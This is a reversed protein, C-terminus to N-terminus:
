SAAFQSSLIYEGKDQVISSIKGILYQNFYGLLESFFSGFYSL